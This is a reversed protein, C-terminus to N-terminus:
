LEIKDIRPQHRGGDFAAELFARVIDSALGVGLVRSGLCLVNADNHQRASRASFSDSCVAARIGRHRNAAMSMGLGTACVLIGCGYKGECVGSAVAHAYDPYDTSSEDFTGLDEFAVQWATLEKKIQEKLAFGAHDSAIALSKETSM